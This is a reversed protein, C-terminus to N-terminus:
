LQREQLASNDVRDTNPFYRTWIDVLNVQTRINNENGEPSATEKMHKIIWMEHCDEWEIRHYIYLRSTHFLAHFYVQGLFGLVTKWMRTNQASDTAMWSPYAQIERAAVHTSGAVHIEWGTRVWSRNSLSETLISVVYRRHYSSYHIDLLQYFSLQCHFDLYESLVLGLIM